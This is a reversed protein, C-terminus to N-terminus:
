IEALAPDPRQWRPPNMVEAYRAIIRADLADTKALNGAADAFRRMRRPNVVAVQFGADHLALALKQEYGGTAEMCVLAVALASLKKLLKRIGAATHPFRLTEGGPRIAVDLGDKSVDVGVYSPDDM